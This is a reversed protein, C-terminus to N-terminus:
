EKPIIINLNSYPFFFSFKIKSAKFNIIIFFRICDDDDNDEEKEEEEEESVIM